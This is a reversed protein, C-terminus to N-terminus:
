RVNNKIPMALSCLLVVIYYTLLTKFFINLQRHAMNKEKNEM